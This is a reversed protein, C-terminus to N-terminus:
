LLKMVFIVKYMVCQVISSKTTCNTNLNNNVYGIRYSM